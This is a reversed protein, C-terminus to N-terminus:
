WVRAVLDNSHSLLMFRRIQFAQFIDYQLDFKQNTLRDRNKSISKTTSCKSLDEM